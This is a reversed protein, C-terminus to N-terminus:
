RQHLIWVITFFSPRKDQLDYLTGFFNSMVDKINFFPGLDIVLIICLGQPPSKQGLGILFCWVVVWCLKLIIMIGRNDNNIM